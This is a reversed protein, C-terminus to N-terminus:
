EHLGDEWPRAPQVPPPAWEPRRWGSGSCRAMAEGRSGRRKWLLFSVTRDKYRLVLPDLLRRPQFAVASVGTLPIEAAVVGFRRRIVFYLRGESLYTAGMHYRGPALGEGSVAGVCFTDDRDRLKHPVHSKFAEPIEDFLTEEAEPRHPSSRARFLAALALLELRVGLGVTLVTAYLNLGSVFALGMVSGLLPLAHM